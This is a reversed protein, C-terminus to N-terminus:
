SSLPLENPIKGGKEKAWKNNVVLNIKEPVFIPLKEPTFNNL